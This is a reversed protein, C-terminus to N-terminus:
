PLVQMCNYLCITGCQLTLLSANQWICRNRALLPPRSLMHQLNSCKTCEMQGIIYAYRALHVAISLTPPCVEVHLGHNVGQCKRQLTATYIPSIRPSPPRTSSKHCSSSTLSPTYLTLTCSAADSDKCMVCQLTSVGSGCSIKACAGHSIYVLNHHVCSCSSVQKLCSAGALNRLSVTAHWCTLSAQKSDPLTHLAVQKRRGAGDGADTITM